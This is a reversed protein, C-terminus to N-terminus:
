PCLQTRMHTLARRLLEPLALLDDIEIEAVTPRRKLVVTLADRTRSVRM